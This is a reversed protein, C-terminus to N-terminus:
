RPAHPPPVMMVACSRISRSTFLAPHHGHPRRVASPKRSATRRSGGRPCQANVASSSSGHQLGPPGPHHGDRADGGGPGGLEIGVVRVEWPFVRRPLRYPWALSAFKWKPRPRSRWKWAAPTPPWGSRAGPGTSCRGAPACPAPLTAAPGGRREPSVAARVPIDADTLRPGLERPGGGVRRRRRRLEVPRPEERRPPRRHPQRHQPAPVEVGADLPQPGTDSSPSRCRARCGSLRPPPPTAQACHSGHRHYYHDHDHTDTLESDCRDPYRPRTRAPPDRTTM